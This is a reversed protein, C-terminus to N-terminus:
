PSLPRGTEKACVLAYPLNIISYLDGISAAGSALCPSGFFGQLFRLAMLANFNPGPLATPISVIVYLFMTIIYIPNRGFAAVESLPSFLLPGVGYGLVFLSLGLAAGTEDVGFEEMVGYESTTYIASSLYVIFTYVCILATVSARRLSTWNLPNEPDDSAYWDVLIAGDNTKRPAIPISKTKQMEHLEDAELREKTYPITEVRTRTRQLAVGPLNAAEGDDEDGGVQKEEDQPIGMTSPGPTSSAASYSSTSSAASPIREPLTEDTAESAQATDGNCVRLWSEPLEFDSQEEPYRLLKNRSVLRVISGFVTDRLLSTM